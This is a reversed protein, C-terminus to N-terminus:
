CRSRACIVVPRPFGKTNVKHNNVYHPFIHPYSQFNKEVRNRCYKPIDEVFKKFAESLKEFVGSFANRISEILVNIVELARDMFDKLLEYTRFAHCTIRVCNEWRNQLDDNSTKTLEQKM